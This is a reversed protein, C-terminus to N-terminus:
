ADAGSGARGALLLDSGFGLQSGVLGAFIAALVILNLALALLIQALLPFRNRM